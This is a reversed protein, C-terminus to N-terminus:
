IRVDTPPTEYKEVVQLNKDKFVVREIKPIEHNPVLVFQSRNQHLEKYESPRITLRQRCNKDSCECYFQLPMDIDQVLSDNGDSEAATKLAELRQPVQENIQRFIVENEAMRRESLEELM